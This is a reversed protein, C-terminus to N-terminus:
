QRAAVEMALLHSALTQAHLVCALIRVGVKADEGGADIWERLALMSKVANELEYSAAIFKELVRGSVRPADAIAQEKSM